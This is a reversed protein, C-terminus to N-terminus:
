VLHRMVIRPAVMQTAMRPAGVGALGTEIPDVSVAWRTSHRNFLSLGDGFHGSQLRKPPQKPGFTAVFQTWEAARSPTEVRQASIKKYIIISPRVHASGERMVSGAPASM